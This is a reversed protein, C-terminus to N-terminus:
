TCLLSYADDWSMGDSDGTTRMEEGESDGREGQERRGEGAEDWVMDVCEEVVEWERVGERVRPLVEPGSGSRGGAVAARARRRRTAESSRRAPKSAEEPSAISSSSPSTKM